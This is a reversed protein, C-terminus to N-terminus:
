SSACRRRTRTWHPRRRPTSRTHHPLVGSILGGRHSMSIDYVAHDIAFLGPINEAFERLGVPKALVRQRHLRAHRRIGPLEALVLALPGDGRQQVIEIPLNMGRQLFMRLLALGDQGLAAHVFLDPAGDERVGVVGAHRAFDGSSFVSYAQSSSAPKMVAM